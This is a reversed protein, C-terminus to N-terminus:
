NYFFFYEPLKLQFIIVSLRVLPLYCNGLFKWSVSGDVLGDSLLVVGVRFPWVM